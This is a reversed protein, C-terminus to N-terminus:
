FQIEVTVSMSVSVFRDLLKLVTYESWSDSETRSVRVRGRSGLALYLFMFHLAFWCFLLLWGGLGDGLGEGRGM